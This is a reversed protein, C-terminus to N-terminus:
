MATILCVYNGSTGKELINHGLLYATTSKNLISVSADDKSSKPQLSMDDQIELEFTESFVAGDDEHLGSVQLLSILRTM